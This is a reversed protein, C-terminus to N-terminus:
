PTPSMSRIHACSPHGLADHGPRQAATRFGCAGAVPWGRGQWPVAVSYFCKRHADTKSQVTARLTCASLCSPRCPGVSTPWGGADCRPARPQSWSRAPRHLISAQHYGGRHKWHLCAHCERACHLHGCHGGECWAAGPAGGGIMGAVAARVFANRMREITILSGREKGPRKVAGSHRRLERQRAAPRAGRWRHNSSSAFQACSAIQPTTGAAAARWHRRRRRRQLANGGAHRGSQTLPRPAAM